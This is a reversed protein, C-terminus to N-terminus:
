KEGERPVVMVRNASIKLQTVAANHLLEAVRADRAGEAVVVVGAIVARDKRAVAITDGNGNKSVLSNVQRQETKIDRTSGDGAKEVTQTTDVRTDTIATVSPGAELTVSVEVKGAGKVKALTRALQAAIDAEMRALEDQPAGPPAMVETAGAPRGSGLQSGFSDLVTMALIGVAVAIVLLRVMGAQQPKFGLAAALRQWWDPGGNGKEGM